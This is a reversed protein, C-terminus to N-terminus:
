FDEIWRIWRLCLFPKYAQIIKYISLIGTVYTFWRITRTNTITYTILPFNRILLSYQCHCYRLITFNNCNSWFMGRGKRTMETKGASLSDNSRGSVSCVWHVAEPRLIIISGVKVEKRYLEYGPSMTGYSLVKTKGQSYLTTGKVGGRHSNNEDAYPFCTQLSPGTKPATDSCSIQWRELM